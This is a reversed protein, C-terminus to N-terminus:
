EPRRGFLERDFLERIQKITMHKGIVYGLFFALGVFFADILHELM